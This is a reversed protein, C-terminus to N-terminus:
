FKNVTAKHKTTLLLKVDAAIHLENYFPFFFFFFSQIMNYIGFLCVSKRATTKKM